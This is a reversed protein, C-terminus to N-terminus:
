HYVTYIGNTLSSHDPTGIAQNIELGLLQESYGRKSLHHKLQNTRLSLNERRQAFEKSGLPKVTYYLLRVISPTAVKSKYINIHGQLNSTCIQRWKGMKNFGLM